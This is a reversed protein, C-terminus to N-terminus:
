ADKMEEALSKVAKELSRLERAKKCVRGTAYRKNKSHFFYWTACAIATLSIVLAIDLTM